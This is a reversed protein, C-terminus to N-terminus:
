IRKDSMTGCVPCKVPVKKHGILSDGCHPCKVFTFRLILGILFFGIALIVLPSLNIGQIGKAFDQLIDAVACITGLVMFINYILFRTKLSM